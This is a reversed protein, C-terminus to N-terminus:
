SIASEKKLTKAEKLALVPASEAEGTTLNVAVELRVAVPVLKDGGKLRRL